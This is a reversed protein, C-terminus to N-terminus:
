SLKYKLKELCQCLRQYSGELQLKATTSYVVEDLVANVARCQYRGTYRYDVSVLELVCRQPTAMSYFTREVPQGDHQWSLLAPPVSNIECQMTVTDGIHAYQTTPQLKFTPALDTHCSRKYREYGATYPKYIVILHRLQRRVKM